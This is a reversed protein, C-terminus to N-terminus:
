IFLGLRMFVYKMDSGTCMCACVCVCARVCACVSCDHSQCCRVFHGFCAVIVDIVTFLIGKFFGHCHM